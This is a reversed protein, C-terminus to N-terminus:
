PIAKFLVSLLQHLITCKLLFHAGCRDSNCHSITLVRNILQLSVNWFRIEETFDGLEGRNFNHLSLDKNLRSVVVSFFLQEACHISENLYLQHGMDEFLFNICAFSRGLVWFYLTFGRGM